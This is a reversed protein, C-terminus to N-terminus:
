IENMDTKIYPKVFIWKTPWIELRKKRNITQNNALTSKSDFLKFKSWFPSKRNIYRHLLPFFCYWWMKRDLQHFEHSNATWNWGWIFTSHIFIRYPVLLTSGRRIETRGAWQYSCNRDHYTCTQYFRRLHTGVHVIWAHSIKDKEEFRLNKPKRKCLEAM